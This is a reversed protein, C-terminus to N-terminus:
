AIRGAQREEGLIGFIRALDGAKFSNVIDAATPGDQEMRMDLPGDRRFSFGREARDLQMSSVGIDLVVGDVPEGALTDLDSFRGEVLRLRGDAAEVLAKGDRIADPDRDIGIVRAGANLLARAYGGAGFTGDVVLADRQLRLAAVVADLLVPIHRAPGGGADERGGPGAMM